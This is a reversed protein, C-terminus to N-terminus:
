RLAKRDPSTLYEILDQATGPLSEQEGTQMTKVQITGSHMEDEGLIVVYPAASRDANKMASKVSRSDFSMDCAIGQTRLLQM